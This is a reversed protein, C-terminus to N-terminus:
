ELFNQLLKCVVVVAINILQMHTGDATIKNLAFRRIHAGIAPNVFLQDRCNFLRRVSACHGAVSGCAADGTAGGRSFLGEKALAQGSRLSTLPQPPCYLRAFFRVFM